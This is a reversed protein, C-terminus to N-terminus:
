LIRTLKKCELRQYRRNTPYVTSSHFDLAGIARFDVKKLAMTLRFLAMDKTDIVSVSNGPM